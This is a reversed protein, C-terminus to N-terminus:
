RRDPLQAWETACAHCCPEGNHDTHNQNPHRCGIDATILDLITPTPPM